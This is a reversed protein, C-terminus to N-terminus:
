VGGPFDTTKYCRVLPFTSMEVIEKGVEEYLSEGFAVIDAANEVCTGIEFDWAGLFLASAYVNPHRECFMQLRKRIVEGCNRLQILHSFHSYGLKTTDVVYRTGLIVGASKLRSIRYELTSLAMGLRRAVESLSMRGINAVETLIRHDLVDIESITGTAEHVVPKTSKAHHHLWQLPYDAAEKYSVSARRDVCAPFHKMLEDLIATHQHLSKVIFGIRVQYTGSLEGLLNVYPNSALYSLLKGRSKFGEATLALFTDHTGYGLRFSNISTRKHVIEEDILRRLTSRVLHDKQGTQRAIEAVTLDGNTHIASLVRRHRETLHIHSRVGAFVVPPLKNIM